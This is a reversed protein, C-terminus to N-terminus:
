HVLVCHRQHLEFGAVGRDRTLCEVESGSRERFGSIFYVYKETHTFNFVYKDFVNIKKKYYMIKSTLVIIDYMFACSSLSNAFSTM